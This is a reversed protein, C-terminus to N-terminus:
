HRNLIKEYAEEIQSAEKIIREIISLIETDPDIDFINQWKQILEQKSQKLMELPKTWNKINLASIYHIAEEVTDLYQTHHNYFILSQLQEEFFQQYELSQAQKAKIVYQTFLRIKLRHMRPDEANQRNRWPNSTALRTELEPWPQKLIGIAFTAATHEGLEMVLLKAPELRWPHNKYYLKISDIYSNNNEFSFQAGKRLMVSEIESSDNVLQSAIKVARSADIKMLDNLEQPQIEVNHHIKYDLLNVAFPRLLSIIKQDVQGKMMGYTKITEALKAREPYDAPYSQLEGAELAEINNQIQKEIYSSPLLKALEEPELPENELNKIESLDEAFQAILRDKYALIIQASQQLYTAARCKPYSKRTCWKSGEGLEALSTPDTVKYVKISGETAELTVGPLEQPNKIRLRTNPLRPLGIEAQYIEDIEKALEQVTYNNINPNPLQHQFNLFDALLKKLDNQDVTTFYEPNALSQRLLWEQYNPNSTILEIFSSVMRVTFPNASTRGDTNAFQNFKDVVKQTLAHLRKILEENIISSLKM